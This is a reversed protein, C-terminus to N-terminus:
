FYNSSTVIPPLAMSNTPGHQHLVPIVTNKPGVTSDVLNKDSGIHKRNVIVFVLGDAFGNVVISFIYFPGLSIFLSKGTVEEFGMVLFSPFVVFFLSGFLIGATIRNAKRFVTSTKRTTFTGVRKKSFKRIGVFVLVSMIAVFFSSLTNSYSLYKLFIKNVFCAMTACNPVRQYESSFIQFLFDFLFWIFGLAMANNAFKIKNINRYHVPFFIALCRDLAMSCNIVIVLKLFAPLLSNTFIIVYPDYDLYTNSWNIALYGVHILAALAYAFDGIALYLALRLNEACPIKKRLFCTIIFFNICFSLVAAVLCCVDTVLYVMAMCSSCLKEILLKNHM